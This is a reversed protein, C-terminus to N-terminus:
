TGVFRDVLAVARGEDETGEVLARGDEFLTVRVDELRFRLMPGARRLEEVAPALRAELSDFDPTERRSRVVQVANRGCLRVTREPEAELFERQGGCTPCEPDPQLPLHRTTGAWSDIEILASRLSPDVLLRLALGAQLSAIAGVAPLIVGATACTELRGPRPPDPFACRLCPGLPHVALTLGRSGVVGAYVWPLELERATDNLLYRTGVNDTGDLLLDTDAALDLALSSDFHLAHAEIRTPGGIRELTDRAAEVKPAHAAAHRPEFLVQRALNSPEVVDRDVLILRGVGCRVLTQALVGGLAGCGVLLISSSELRAQGAEGLPSFAVQRLFRDRQSNEGSM